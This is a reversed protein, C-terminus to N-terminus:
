GGISDTLLPLIEKAGQLILDTDVQGSTQYEIYVKVAYILVIGIVIRLAKTRSIRMKGAPNQPTNERISTAIPGTIPFTQAVNLVPDVVYKWIRTQRFPKKVKKKDTM